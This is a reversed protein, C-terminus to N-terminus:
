VCGVARLAKAGGASRERPRTAPPPRPVKLRTFPISPSVGFETMNTKGILCGGSAFLSKAVPASAKPEVPTSLSGFCSKAGKVDINDKVSYPIGLVRSNIQGTLFNKEAVRASELAYDLTFERFANIKSESDKARKVTEQLLETPSITKKIFLEHLKRITQKDIDTM